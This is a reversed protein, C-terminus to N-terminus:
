ERQQMHVVLFVVKQRETM